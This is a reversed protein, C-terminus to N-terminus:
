PKGRSFNWSGWRIKLFSNQFQLSATTTIYVRLCFKHKLIQHIVKVTARIQTLVRQCLGAKELSKAIWRAAHEASSDVQFPDKGSFAGGGHVGM